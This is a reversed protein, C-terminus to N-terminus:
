AGGDDETQGGGTQPAHVGGGFMPLLKGMGGFLQMLQAWESPQNALQKWAMQGMGTEQGSLDQMLGSLGSYASNQALGKQTLLNAKAAAM